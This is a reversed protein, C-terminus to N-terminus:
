MELYKMLMDYRERDPTEIAEFNYAGVVDYEYRAL